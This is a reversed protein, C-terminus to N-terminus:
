RQPKERIKRIEQFAKQYISIMRPEDVAELVHSLEFWKVGLNEDPKIELPDKENGILLYTVNLHLHDPVYDGNKQHNEVYIVDLMFIDESYPKVNKLGTEEKTEKIAVSLCDSDGDNHGGVWGWADYIKHYAFLVKDMTENVVIASSTLHGVTNTRHLVDPNRKIFELITKQDYAEQQTKPKYNKIKEIM